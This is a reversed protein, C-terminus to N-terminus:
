NASKIWEVFKLVGGEIEPCGSGSMPTPNWALTRQAEGTHILEVTTRDTKIGVLIRIKETKELAPYLAHVPGDGTGRGCARRTALM